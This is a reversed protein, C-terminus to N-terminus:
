AYLRELWGMTGRGRAGGDRRAAVALLAYFVTLLAALVSPAMYGQETNILSLQATFVSYGALPQWACGPRPRGLLLGYVTYLVLGVLFWGLFNSLPVGYFSPGGPAWRWLGLGTLAPDMAVDVLTLLAASALVVVPLGHPRRFLLWSALYVPYSLAIWMAAVLVPVGAVMPRMAPSYSYCGFPVCYNVGVYEAAFVVALGAGAAVLLRRAGHAVAASHVALAVYAISGLVHLWRYGAGAVVLLSVGAYLLLLVSGARCGSSGM